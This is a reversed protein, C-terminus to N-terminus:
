RVWIHSVLVNAALKWARSFTARRYYLSPAEGLPAIRLFSALVGVVQERYSIAM